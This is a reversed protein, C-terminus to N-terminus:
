GENAEGGANQNPSAAPPLLVQGLTIPDLDVGDEGPPLLSMYIPAQELAFVFRQAEEPTLALVVQLSSGADIQSTTGDTNTQQIVRLVEVDPLLVITTDFRLTDPSQGPVVELKKNLKVLEVGSFTAFISVRDGGALTGSIARPAGLAVTM